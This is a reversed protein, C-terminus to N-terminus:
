NSIQKKIHDKNQQANKQARWNFDAQYVAQRMRAPWEIASHEVISRGPNFSLAEGDAEAIPKNSEVITLNALPVYDGRWLQTPDETSEGKQQFQVCFTFQAPAKALQRQLTHRLYDREFYNVPVEAASKAKHLLAYKCNREGFRHPVQSFYDIDLLSHILKGTAAVGVFPINPKQILLDLIKGQIVLLMQKATSVFFTPFNAMIFDQEPLNEEGALGKEGDVGFIKIAVGRVNPLLDPAKENLAGNSFRIVAKYSKAESFIGVQLDAPLNLVELKADVRGLSKGHLARRAVTGPQHLKEQRGIIIQVMENIVEAEHPPSQHDFFLM